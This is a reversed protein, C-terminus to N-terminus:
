NETKFNYNQRDKLMQVLVIAYSIIVVPRDITRSIDVYMYVYHIYIYIYIYVKIILKNILTRESIIFKTKLDFTRILIPNEAVEIRYILSGFASTPLLYKEFLLRISATVNKILFIIKLCSIPIGIRISDICTWLRLESM